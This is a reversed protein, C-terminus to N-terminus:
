LIFDFCSVVCYFLLVGASTLNQQKTIKFKGIFLEDRKVWVANIARDFKTM